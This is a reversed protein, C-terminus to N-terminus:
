KKLQSVLENEMVLLICDSKCISTHQMVMPEAEIKEIDTLLYGAQITEVKYDHRMSMKNMSHDLNIFMLDRDTAKPYSMISDVQTDFEM